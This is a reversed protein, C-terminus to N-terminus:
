SDDAQPDGVDTSQNTSQHTTTVCSAIDAPENSIPSSLSNDNDSETIGERHFDHGSKLDSQQIAAVVSTPSQTQDTRHEQLKSVTSAPSPYRSVAPLKQQKPPRTDEDDDRAIVDFVSDGELEDPGDLTPSCPSTSRKRKTPLPYEYDIVGHNGNNDDANPGNTVGNTCDSLLQSALDFGDDILRCTPGRPFTTDLEGISGVDCYGDGAESYTGESQNSESEEDDDNLVIPEDLISHTRIGYM